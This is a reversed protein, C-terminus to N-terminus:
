NKIALSKIAQNIVGQTFDDVAMPLDNLKSFPIWRYADNSGDLLRVVPDKTAVIYNLQMSQMEWEFYTSEFWSAGICERVQGTIGAEEHLERLVAEAPDEGFKVKGAPLAWRRPLFAETESRRLFLISQDHVTVASVVV